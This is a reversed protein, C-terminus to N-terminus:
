DIWRVLIEKVEALPGSVFLGVVFWLVRTQTAFFERVWVFTQRVSALTPSAEQSCEVCDDDEGSYVWPAEAETPTLDGVLGEFNAVVLVKGRTWSYRM